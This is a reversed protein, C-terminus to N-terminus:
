RKAVIMRYTSLTETGVQDAITINLTFSGSPVKMKNVNISNGEIYPKFRATLSKKIWGKRACIQLSDMNVPAHNEEFFVLVKTPSVINVTPGYDSNKIQPLEIRILPGDPLSRTRPILDWDDKTQRLEDAERSSFLVLEEEPSSGAETTYNFWFLLGALM